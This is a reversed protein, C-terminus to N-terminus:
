SKKRIIVAEPSIQGFYYKESNLVSKQVSLKETSGTFSAKRIKVDTYYSPDYIMVDAGSADCPAALELRFSYVLRGKVIKPMFDTARAPKIVKSNVKVFSFYSSEALYDFYEKKLQATEDYDIRGNRNKDYDMLIMSSFMEDFLWIHEIATIKGNRTEIGVDADIFVHPHASAAGCCLIFICLLVQKM